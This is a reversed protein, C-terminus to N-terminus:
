QAQKPKKLLSFAFGAVILAGGVLLAWLLWAKWDREVPAPTLATRADALSEEKGLTATAPQWHQGRQARLADVLQALPADARAARASGALLAYPPQGQALFVLVEPRYGLRLTPAAGDAATESTLQWFHDRNLRHLPHPASRSSNGQLQFAMWQGAAPQWGVDESDRSKLVWENSSNGPLVVDAQEFPFRGNIEYVFAASGDKEIVRKGSIEEWQWDPTAAAAFEARVGALALPAEKQLALLRLYRAQVGGVELRDNLIRAGNNQLDVLRGEEQVTRWNKLDDSAEVRYARDFPEQGAAWSVQLAQVPQRLRSTDILYDTGSGSATGAGTMVVRRLSGDAAIESISAVDRSQADGGGPLAFWPVEVSPVARALPQEADFLSASVAAGEVNVVVLDKVAPSQLHAYVSRDLVVRYAGAEANSLGLPWQRAYDERVGAFAALPLLALWALRSINATKM